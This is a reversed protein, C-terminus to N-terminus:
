SFCSSIPITAVSDAEFRSTMPSAVGTDLKVTAGEIEAGVVVIQGLRSQVLTDDLDATM